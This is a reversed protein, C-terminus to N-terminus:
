PVAPAEAPVVPADAAAPVAPADAATAATPAAVPAAAEPAEPPGAIPQPTIAGIASVVASVLTARMEPSLAHSVRPWSKLTIDYGNSRLAEVSWSAWQLPILPDTEGHLALVKPLPRLKPRESPWLPSPLYGSVPIAEAILEPHAAALEFSLIGGQSFGCVVAREPGGREKKLAVILQSVRDAATRIGKGLEDGGKEDNPHFEFWSFGDSGHPMPGRPFVVRARAPLDDLLLRFTEPHDGLGHMAVVVPVPDEAAAGGTLVELYRLGSSEDQKLENAQAFAATPGPPAAFVLTSLAAAIAVLVRARMRIHTLM